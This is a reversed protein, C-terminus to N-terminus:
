AVVYKLVAYMHFGTGGLVFLHWIAHHYKLKRMLYFAVGVTYSVGGYLMMNVVEQSLIEAIEDFMLFGLWGMGLYSALSIFELKGTLFIKFVIGAIAIAWVAILLNIGLSTNGLVGWCFPTFTGAILLYISIHDLKKFLFKKSKSKVSHYLTSSSYLIFATACFVSTSWFVATNEIPQLLVYIFAVLAGLIGIGHTIANALEEEPTYIDLKVEKKM